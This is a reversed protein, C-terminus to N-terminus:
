NIQKREGSIRQNEESFIVGVQEYLFRPTM